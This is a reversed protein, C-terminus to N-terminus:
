LNMKNILNKLTNRAKSLQSRSTAENIGLLDGIEKHSYGEIAYMNFVTRYGAPLLLILKYIDKADLDADAHNYSISYEIESQNVFSIKKKRLFMLCENIMIRRVWAEFSISDVFEFKDLKSFVKVFGDSLVEEADEKNNLYRYCHVFMKSSYSKFLAKQARRNGRRCKEIQKGDIM